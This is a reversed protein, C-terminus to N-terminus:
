RSDKPLVSKWYSPVCGAEKAISKLIMMDEDKLTENCATNADHRSRLLTVQSIFFSIKSGYESNYILDPSAFSAVDRGIARMFQGMKHIYVRLYKLNSEKNGENMKRSLKDLDLTVYEHHRTISRDVKPGFCIRKPEQYLIRFPYPYDARLEVKDLFTKRQRYLDYKAAWLPLERMKHSNRYKNNIWGIQENAGIIDASYDMVYEQVDITINDFEIASVESTRYTINQSYSSKCANPLSYRMTEPVNGMLLGKLHGPKILFTDNFLIADGRGLGNNLVIRADLSSM